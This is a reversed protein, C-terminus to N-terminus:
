MSSLSTLLTDMNAMKCVSLLYDRLCIYKSSGRNGFECRWWSLFRYKNALIRPFISAVFNKPIFSLSFFAHFIFWSRGGGKFHPFLQKSKPIKQKGKEKWRVGYGTKICWCPIYWGNRSKYERSVQAKNEGTSLSFHKGKRRRCVLCLPLPLAMEKTRMPFSPPSISPM